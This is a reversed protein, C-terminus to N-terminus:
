QITGVPTSGSAVTPSEEPGFNQPAVYAHGHEDFYEMILQYQGWTTEPDLGNQKAIVAWQNKVAANNDAIIKEAAKNTETQLISLASVREKILAHIITGAKLADGTLLISETM